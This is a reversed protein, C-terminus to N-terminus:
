NIDNSNSYNSENQYYLNNNYNKSNDNAYINLENFNVKKKINFNLYNKAHRLFLKLYEEDNKLKIINILCRFKDSKLFEEYFKEIRPFKKNLDSIKQIFSFRLNKRYFILIEDEIEM